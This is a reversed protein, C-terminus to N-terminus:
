HIHAYFCVVDIYLFSYQVLVKLVPGFYSLFPISNSVSQVQSVTFSSAIVIFVPVIILISIYDTFKRTLMRSKKVHWINNFSSEINGLM